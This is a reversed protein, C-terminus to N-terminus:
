GVRLVGSGPIGENKLQALAENARELPFCTTRARIPIEAAAALLERGDEFWVRIQGHESM